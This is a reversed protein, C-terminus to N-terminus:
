GGYLDPLMFQRGVRKEKEDPLWGSYICWVHLRGGGRQGRTTVAKNFDCYRIREFEIGLLEGRRCPM